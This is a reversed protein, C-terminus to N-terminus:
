TWEAVGAITNLTYEAIPTDDITKWDHGVFANIPMPLDKIKTFNSIEFWADSMCQSIEEAMHKAEELTDAEGTYSDHVFMNLKSLDMVEGMRVLALKAVEAGFGQNMINNTDTPLKGIYKRGMPTSLTRKAQWHRINQSHWAKIGPFTQLWTKKHQKLEAEPLQMGTYKTLVSGITAWGAGYLSAFNYIKAIQRLSNGRGADSVNTNKDFLKDRVFSHMDTEDRFLKELTPEGILACLSRLELQAFDVYVMFRKSKIFKKLVQPVQQLNQNACKSRGSRTGINLHGKIYDNGDNAELFKRIFTNQKTLSRVTRVNCARENGDACLRALADDDSQESDIYPRVQQYSNINIPMNYEAIKDLNVQKQAELGEVDIPLNQRMKSFALVTSKDLSYTWGATNIDYSELITPLIWVDLAAYAYQSPLLKKSWDMKQMKKKDYEVTSPFNIEQENFTVAMDGKFMREYPDYGYIRTAVKDLGHGDLRFNLITDLIYTDDWEKPTWGLCDMDYKLNHGTVSSMESLRKKMLVLPYDHSDFIYVSNPNIEPCYIQLLRVEGYLGITETDIFCKLGKFRVEEDNM